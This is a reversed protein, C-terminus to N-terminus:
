RAIFKNFTSQEGDAKVDQYLLALNKEEFKDFFEAWTIAELRDDKGNEAFDIRLLGVADGSRTGKVSAPTGNREEAWQRIVDHDTTKKAESM